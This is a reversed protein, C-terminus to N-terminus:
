LVELVLVGRRLVCVVLSREDPNMAACRLVERWAEPPVGELTDVPEEVLHWRAVVPVEAAAIQAAGYAKVDQLKELVALARIQQVRQRLQIDGAAEFRGFDSDIVYIRFFGDTAVEERVKHHHSAVVEPPLMDSARLMPPAEYGLAPDMDEASLRPLAAGPPGAPSCAILSLSLSLAAIFIRMRSM